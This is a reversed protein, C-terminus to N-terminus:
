DFIIFHCASNVICGYGVENTGWAIRVKEQCSLTDGDSSSCSEMEQEIEDFDEDHHDKQENFDEYDHHHYNQEDEDHHQEDEHHGYEDENDHHENEDENDHLENEDYEDEHHYEYGDEDGFEDQTDFEYDIENLDEGNESLDSFEDSVEGNEDDFIEGYEDDLFEGNEHSTDENEEWTDMEMMKQFKELEKYVQRHQHAARSGDGDEYKYKGLIDMKQKLDGIIKSHDEAENESGGMTDIEMEVKDANIIINLIGTCLACAFFVLYFSRM